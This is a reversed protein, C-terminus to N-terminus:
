FTRAPARQRSSRGYASFPKKGQVVIRAFRLNPHTQGSHRVILVSLQYFILQCQPARPRNAAHAPQGPYPQFAAFGALTPDKPKRPNATGIPAFRGAKYVPRPRSHGCGHRYSHNRVYVFSRGHIFPSRLVYITVPMKKEHRASYTTLRSSHIGIFRRRHPM